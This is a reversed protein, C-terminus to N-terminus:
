RRKTKKRINSGGGLDKSPRRRQMYEALERRLHENNGRLTTNERNCRDLQNELDDIDRVLRDNEHQFESLREIEAQLIDNERQRQRELDVIEDELARIEGLLNLNERALEDVAEDYEGLEESLQTIKEELQIIIREPDRRDM